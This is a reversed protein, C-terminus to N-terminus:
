VLRVRGHGLLLHVLDGVLDLALDGAGAESTQVPDSAEFHALQRHHADGRGSVAVLRKSSATREDVADLFAHRDPLALVAGVPRVPNPPLVRPAPVLAM